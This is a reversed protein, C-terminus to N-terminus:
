RKFENTILEDSLNTRRIFNYLCVLSYVLAVQTEINFAPRNTNRLIKFREKLISFTREIVNRLSSHRLNFLE